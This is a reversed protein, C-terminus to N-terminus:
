QVEVSQTNNGRVTLPKLSCLKNASSKQVAEDIKKNKCHSAANLIHTQAILGTQEDCTNRKTYPEKKRERFNTHITM